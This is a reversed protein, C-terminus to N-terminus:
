RADMSTEIDLSVTRLPPRYDAPTIRPNLHAGAPVFDEPEALELHAGATVFREMLYRDPPRIDAEWYPIAAKDLRQRAERASRQSRCYVADVAHSEFTKLPVEATRWQRVGRLLSSILPTQDRRVFFVIEQGTIQTWVPGNDTAWWFDLAVGDRTDRWQRTLLFAHPMVAHDPSSNARVTYAIARTKTRRRVSHALHNKSGAGRYDRGMLM